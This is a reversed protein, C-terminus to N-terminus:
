TLSFNEGIRYLQLRFWQFIKSTLTFQWTKSLHWGQVSMKPRRCSQKYTFSRASDRIDPRLESRPFRFRRLGHKCRPSGRALVEAVNQLSSSRCCWVEPAQSGFGCQRHVSVPALAAVWTWQQCWRGEALFVLWASVDPHEVSSACACAFIFLYTLLM